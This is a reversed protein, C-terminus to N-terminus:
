SVKNETISCILSFPQKINALFLVYKSEKGLKEILAVISLSTKTVVEEGLLAEDNVVGNNEIM